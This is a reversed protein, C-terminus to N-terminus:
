IQGHRNTGRWETVFASLEGINILASNAHQKCIKTKTFALSDSFLVGNQCWLGYAVVM